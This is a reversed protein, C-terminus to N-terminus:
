SLVTKETDECHHIQVEQLLLRPQVTASRAVEGHGQPLLQLSSVGDEPWQAQQHFATPSVTGTTLLAAILALTHWCFDGFFVM